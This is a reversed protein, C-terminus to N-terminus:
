SPSTDPSPSPSDYWRVARILGQQNEIARERGKETSYCITKSFRRDGLRYTVAAKWPRKPMNRRSPPM